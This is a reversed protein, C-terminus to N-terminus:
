SGPTIDDDDRVPNEREFLNLSDIDEQVRRAQIKRVVMWIILGAAALLVAPLLVGLFGHGTYVTRRSLWVIILLAVAFQWAPQIALERQRELETRYFAVCSSWSVGPGSLSGLSRRYFMYVDRGATVFLMVMVFGAIIAVNLRASMFVIGCFVAAVLAFASRAFLDRRSQRISEQAKVRIQQLSM